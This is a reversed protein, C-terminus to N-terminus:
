VAVDDPETFIARYSTYATAIALPLWVLMGLFLPIMAVMLLAAMLVGYLLMPLTNRLCAVLSAKMATLAPVGHLMALAPAFWLSAMLPIALVLAVLAGIAVRIVDVGNLARVMAEPDGSLIAGILPFGAIAGMVVLLALEGLAYLVGIAFLYGTNRRFGALLHELELDGGTELSRCGLAIGGLLLPTALSGLLSGAYPVFGLGLHLLFFLVLFVVWMVTAKRFLRWGEAIWAAGEGARVVRGPLVLRPSPPDGSGSREDPPGGTTNM